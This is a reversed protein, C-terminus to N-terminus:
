RLNFLRLYQRSKSSSRLIPLIEEWLRRLTLNLNAEFGLIVLLIIM